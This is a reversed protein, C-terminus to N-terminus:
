DTGHKIGAEELIRKKKRKIYELDASYDSRYANYKRAYPNHRHFVMTDKAIVSTIQGAARYFFEHHDIIRINPDFGVQKLSETRALYINAVKSLVTHNEDIETMHPIKLPVPSDKIPNKYYEEFNFAPSHLRIATTHGFGVLDTEPHEMLWKLERHVKSRNTLLEDDDMRMVYPTKVEDLAAQLGASLGTNFPLQIVKVNPMDIHLPIHSDDAVIMSIGPYLHTINRCLGKALHQREFSKFIFTVNEKMMEKESSDPLDAGKFLGIVNLIYFEIHSVLMYVISLVPALFSQHTKAYIRKLINENKHIQQSRIMVTQQEPFIKEILDSGDIEHNKMDNFLYQRGAAYLKSVFENLDAEHCRNRITEWDILDEYARSYLVIDSITRITPKTNQYAEDLLEYLQDTYPLTYLNVGYIIQTNKETETERPYLDIYVNRGYCSIGNENVSTRLGYENLAKLYEETKDKPILLTEEETQLQEPEPYLSRLVIGGNVVPYLEQESLYQYVDMFVATRQAQNKTLREAKKITEENLEAASDLQDAILPFVNQKDAFACLQRIEKETIDTLRTGNLACSYTKLFLKITNNM